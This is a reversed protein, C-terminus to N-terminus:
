EYDVEDDLLLEDNEYIFRSMAVNGFAIFFITSVPQNVGWLYAENITAMFCSLVIFINAKIHCDRVFRLFYINKFGHFILLAILLGGLPIGLMKIFDLYGNHSGYESIKLSETSQTAYLGNGTIPNAKIMVLAAERENERGESLNGSEVTESFRDFATINVGFQPLVTMIVFISVLAAIMFKLRFGHRIILAIIIIGMATRSGSELASILLELMCIISITQVKNDKHGFTNYQVGFALAALAGASNPNVFGLGQRGGYSINYVFHGVCTLIAISYVFITLCYVRNIKPYTRISVIIALTSVVKAVYYILSKDNSYFLGFTIQYFTFIAIMQIFFPFISYLRVESNRINQAIMILALALLTYFGLSAIPRLAFYQEM